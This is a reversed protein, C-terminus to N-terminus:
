LGHPPRTVPTEQPVPSAAAAQAASGSRALAALKRQQWWRPVMGLVGVVLGIACASLIILILPATWQRGFFFHVTVDHRNNLALAFLTFFIAAKLTWKFLWVIPNM